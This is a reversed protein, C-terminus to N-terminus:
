AAKRQRLILTTDRGFQRRFQHRVFAIVVAEKTTFRPSKADFGCTNAVAKEFTKAVDVRILAAKRNLRHIRVLFEPAGLPLEKVIHM